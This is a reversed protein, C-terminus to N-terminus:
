CGPVDSGEMNNVDPEAATTDCLRWDSDGEVHQWGFSRLDPQTEFLTRCGAFFAGYAARLVQERFARASPSKLAAVRAKALVELTQARRAGTLASTVENTM